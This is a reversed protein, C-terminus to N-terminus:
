GEDRGDSVEDLDFVEGSCEGGEEDYANLAPSKFGALFQGLIPKGESFERLRNSQKERGSCSPFTYFPAAKRYIPAMFLRTKLVMSRSRCERLWELWVEGFEDAFREPVQFEPFIRSFVSVAPSREVENVFYCLDGTSPDAIVSIDMRAFIRLTSKQQLQNEEQIILEELTTLAFEHLENDAQERERRSGGDRSALEPLTRDEMKKRIEALSYGGTTQRLWRYKGETKLLVRATKEDWDLYVMSSADSGERKLISRKGTDPVPNDRLLITEPRLTRTVQHAIKDLLQIVSLKHSAWLREKVPPWIPIKEELVELNRLYLEATTWNELGNNFTLDLLLDAGGFVVDYRGRLMRGASGSLILLRYDEWRLYEVDIGCDPNSSLRHLIYLQSRHTFGPPARQPMKHVFSRLDECGLLYTAEDEPLHIQFWELAEVAAKTSNQGAELPLIALVKYQRQYGANHTTPTGSLYKQATVCWIGPEFNAPIIPSAKANLRNGATYILM